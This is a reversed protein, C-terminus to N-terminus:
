EAHAGSSRIVRYKATQHETTIIDEVIKRVRPGPLRQLTPLRREVQRRIRPGSSKVVEYIQEGDLEVGRHQMRTPFLAVNYKALLRWVPDMNQSTSFRGYVYLNVPEGLGNIAPRLERRAFPIQALVAGRISHEDYVQPDFARDVERLANPVVFSSASRAGWEAVAQGTSKPNPREVINLLQAISDLFSQQMYSKGVMAATYAVRNWLNQDTFKRYRVADLINGVVALPLAMPTPLFSYYRGGLKIANPKWGAAKMTQKVSASPPGDGTIDFLPDDDDIYRLAELFTATLMLSGLIAKAHLDAIQERTARSTVDVKDGYLGKAGARLARWIGLPTYNLSENTVNSVINTFPVVLRAWPHRMGFTNIHQAVAGLVGYTRNNFTTALGYSIGTQLLEHGRAADTLEAVRRALDRGTFGESTAQATFNAQQAQTNSLLTQTRAQLPAGRLGSGQAALRAALAQRQESGMHFFLLDTASLLRGVTKWPLLWSSNYRYLAMPDNFKTMKPGTVHGTRLVHVAERGGRITGRGLAALTGPLSTPHRVTQAIVNGTLAMSNSFFNLLHTGTGSLVHAYWFAMPLEWWHLPKLKAMENMLEITAQQRRFQQDEPIAQLKAAAARLAAAHESSLSQFGMADRVSEFYKADDLAGVNALTLLRQWAQRIQRTRKTNPQGQALKQLARQKRSVVAADYRKQIAEHLTEAPKGTLGSSNVIARALPERLGAARGQRVAEGLRVNWSRLQERIRRDLENEAVPEPQNSQRALERVARAKRIRAGTNRHQAKLKRGWTDQVANSFAEARDPPVGASILRERLPRADRQHGPAPPAPNFYDHIVDLVTAPQRTANAGAQVTEDARLQAASLERELRQITSDKAIADDVAARAAAQTDPHALADQAAAKGISRIAQLGLQLLNHFTELVNDAAGYLGREALMVAGEPTTWSFAKLMNIFQGMETTLPILRNLFASQRQRWPNRQDMPAASEQRAMDRSVVAALGARIAEPIRLSFDFIIQEARDLGIRGFIERAAADAGKMNAVEYTRETILARTEPSLWSENDLQTALKRDNLSYRPGSSEGSRAEGARQAGLTSREPTAQEGGIEQSYRPYAYRIQADPDPTEPDRLHHRIGKVTQQTHISRVARLIAQAVEADSLDRWGRKALWEKIRQVTNRWWTTQEEAQRAIFEETLWAEYNGGARIQDDTWGADLLTEEYFERTYGARELAARSKRSLRGTLRDLEQQGAPTMLDGHAGEHRVKAAVKSAAQPDLHAANLHVQGDVYKADWRAAPDYIVHLPTGSPIVPDALARVADVHSQRFPSLRPVVQSHRAPQAPGGAPQQQTEAPPPIREAAIADLAAQEDLTASAYLRMADPHIILSQVAEPSQAARLQAALAAVSKSRARDAALAAAAQQDLLATEQAAQQEAAVRSKSDRGMRAWLAKVSPEEIMGAEFAHQAVQDPMGTGWAMNHHSAALTTPADDWLFGLEAARGSKEAATRSMVGGHDVLYDILDSGSAETERHLRRRIGIRAAAARRQREDEVALAANAVAVQEASPPAAPIALTTGASAGEPAPVPPTTVTTAPGEESMENGNANVETGPETPTAQEGGFEDVDDLFPQAPEVIVAATTIPDAPSREANSLSVATSLAHHPALLIAMPGAAQAATDWLQQAYDTREAPLESKKITDDVSYAVEQAAISTIQQLEEEALEEVYEKGYKLAAKGMIRKATGKIRDLALRKLGPIIKGVQSFEVLSYPLAAATAVQSAVQHNVGDNRLERYIQGRGQDYWFKAAGYIQGAGYGMGGAAPITVIEEPTATFPPVQGAVATVAAAGLGFELGTKAGQLSGELMPPAMEVAGLAAESLWNDGKIDQTKWKKTFETESAKVQAWLREDDAARNAALDLHTAESGRQYRLVAKSDQQQPIYFPAQQSVMPPPSIEEPVVPPALIKSVLEETTTKRPEVFRSVPVPGLTSIEANQDVAFNPDLDAPEIQLPMYPELRLPEEIPILQLTPM